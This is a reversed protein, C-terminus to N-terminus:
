DSRIEPGDLVGPLRLERPLYTGSFFPTGGGFSFVGKLIASGRVM